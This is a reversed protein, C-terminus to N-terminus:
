CEDGQAAERTGAVPATVGEYAEVANRLNYFMRGDGLTEGLPSRRVVRLAEPNLGALWLTIGQERLKEEFGILARLATYEFDPIAGCDVLLVGPRAEEVLDWAGERLRPASAFTLRGETRVILLGPITEDEPHEGTLPRFVSTGPKRGLAYLPPHNAQYFLTGVSIAVAVLIGDLTGLFVVGALAALAWWLETRRVRAIAQFDEPKILPLSTVVVVAALAAKPLLSVVPALILLTAAVLAATVLEAVQT